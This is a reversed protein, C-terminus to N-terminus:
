SGADGASEAAIQRVGGPIHVTDVLDVAVHPVEARGVDLGSLVAVLSVAQGLDALQDRVEGDLLDLLIELVDEALRQLHRKALFRVSLGVVAGAGGGSFTSSM